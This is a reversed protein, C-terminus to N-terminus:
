EGGKNAEDYKVKMNALERPLSVFFVSWAMSMTIERRVDYVTIEDFKPANFLIQAFMKGDNDSDKLRKNIRNVADFINEGKNPRLDQPEAGFYNKIKVRFFDIIDPLGSFAEFFSFVMVDGKGVLVGKEGFYAFWDSGLFQMDNSMLKDMAKKNLSLLNPM